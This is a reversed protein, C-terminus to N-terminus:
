TAKPTQTVLKELLSRARQETEGYHTLYEQFERSIDLAADAELRLRLIMDRVRVPHPLQSDDRLDDLAQRADYRDM